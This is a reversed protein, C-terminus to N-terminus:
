EHFGGDKRQRGQQKRTRRVARGIGAMRLGRRVYQTSVNRCSRTRNGIIGEFSDLPANRVSERHDHELECIYIARSLIIKLEDINVPKCLFDHAGQSIAEVANKKENQGTIVIVKILPDFHLVETLTSFGERCDGSTPPLGLDLTVVAPREREVQKLASIRDEAFLVEYDSALAWKMQARVEDDDEVILLKTKDM